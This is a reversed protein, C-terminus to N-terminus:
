RTLFSVGIDSRVYDKTKGFFVQTKKLHLIRSAYKVASRIDHSVMITTIGTERNIKEIISYLEMTVLPDLGTVPEDLLLLRKAACLARALLVRQKQGGSLSRFPALRIATLGLRKM